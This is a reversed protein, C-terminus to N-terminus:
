QSTTGADRDDERQDEDFIYDVLNLLYTPTLEFNNEKKLKNDICAIFAEFYASDVGVLQDRLTEVDRLDLENLQFCMKLYQGANISFGRKVFKRTRIISCLPYKSGMYRLEKTILSTLAPENLVLGTKWTWYNTAHLFDYNEHITAADGVFRTVIQIDDSLTIANETVYILSYKADEKPEYKRAGSSKILIRVRTKDNLYAGKGELYHRALRELTDHDSLYLDYDNVPEQLLMSAICGGTVVVADRVDDRLKEPLTSVWDLIKAKIAKNITKRKM